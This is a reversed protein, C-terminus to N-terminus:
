FRRMVRYKGAYYRKAIDNIYSASINHNFDHWGLKSYINLIEEPLLGCDLLEITTVIRAKHTPNPQTIQEFRYPSLLRRLFEKADKPDLLSTVQTKTKPAIFENRVPEIEDIKLELLSKTRRMDYAISHPYKSYHYIEADSLYPFNEPLYSCYTTNEPPRLTNPVRCLAAINGVLHTDVSSVDGWRKVGLANQMIFWSITTLLQKPNDSVIPKSLVHLQIGKRGTIVPIVPFGENRCWLFLKKADSLVTTTKNDRIDLDFLIRDIVHSLPYVSTFIDTTGNHSEIWETFQRLNYVKDRWRGM